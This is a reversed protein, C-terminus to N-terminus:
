EGGCKPADEAPDYPIVDSPPSYEVDFNEPLAETWYEDLLAVIEDLSETYSEGAVPEATLAQPAGGADDAAGEDDEGCGAMVLCAACCLPLLGGKLGRPIM